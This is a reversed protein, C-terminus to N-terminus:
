KKRYKEMFHEGNEFFFNLLISKIEFIDNNNTTKEDFIYKYINLVLAKTLMKIKAM